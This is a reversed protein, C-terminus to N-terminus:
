CQRRKEEREDFVMVGYLHLLLPDALRSRPQPISRIRGKSVLDLVLILVVVLVIRSERSVRRNPCTSIPTQAVGEALPFPTISGYHSWNM